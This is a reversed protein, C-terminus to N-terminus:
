LAAHLSQGVKDGSPTFPLKTPPRWAIVTQVTESKELADGSRLVTDVLPIKQDIFCFHDDLPPRRM